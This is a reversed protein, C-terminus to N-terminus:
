TFLTSIQSKRRRVVKYALRTVSEFTRQLSNNYPAAIVESFGCRHFAQM